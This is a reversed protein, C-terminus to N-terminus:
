LCYTYRFGSLLKECGSLADQLTPKLWSSTDPYVTQRENM